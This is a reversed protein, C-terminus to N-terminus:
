HRKDKRGLIFVGETEVIRGFTFLGVTSLLNALLKGMPGLAKKLYYFAGSLLRAGSFRSNKLLPYYWEPYTFFRWFYPSYTKIKGFGKEQLMARLEKPSFLSIHFEDFPDTVFGRKTLGTVMPMYAPKSESFVVIRGGPKLVRWIEEMAGPLDPVHGFVDCSIVIDFSADEYPLAGGDYLDFEINPTGHEKLLEQARRYAKDSIEVGTFSVDPKCVGLEIDLLGNGSGFDLVKLHHPPTIKKNPIHLYFFLRKPDLLFMLRTMRASRGSLLTDRHWQDTGANNIKRQSDANDLQLKEKAM